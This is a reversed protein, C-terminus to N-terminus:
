PQSVTLTKTAGSANKFIIVGDVPDTDYATIKFLAEDPYEYAAGINVVNWSFGQDISYLHSFLVSSPQGSMNYSISDVYWPQLPSRLKVIVSPAINTVVVDYVEMTEAEDYIKLTSEEFTAVVAKDEDMTLSENLSDGSLSGSWGTLIWGVDPVALLSVTTGGAFSMVGLYETQNVHITGDGVVSTELTYVDYEEGGAASTPPVFEGSVAEFLINKQKIPRLAGDWPRLNVIDQCSGTPAMSPSVDRQIGIIQVKIRAPEM